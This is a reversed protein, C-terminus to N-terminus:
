STIRADCAWSCGRLVVSADFSVQSSERQEDILRVSVSDPPFASRMISFLCGPMHRRKPQCPCARNCVYLVPGDRIDSRALPSLGQVEADQRTIDLTKPFALPLDLRTVPPCPMTLTPTRGFGCSTGPSQLEEPLCKRLRSPCTVSHSNLAAGSPTFRSCGLKLVGLNVRVSLWHSFRSM